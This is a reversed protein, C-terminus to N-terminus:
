RNEMEAIRAELESIRDAQGRIEDQQEQIAKILVPILQSYYIGLNEAPKNMPQPGNPGESLVTETKAVVESIVPEVEQAILGLKRGAEPRDRWSFSIPQLKMVEDLGYELDSIGDKLREDSTNITGDVAWVATWRNASGGLSWYNDRDPMWNADCGFTNSGIDAITEVSGIMITNDVHLTTDPSGTGIGVWGNKTITVRPTGGTGLTIYGNPRNCFLNMRDTNDLRLGAVTGDENEFYIGEASSQGTNPNTIYMGVFDDADRYIELDVAPDLTGIGVERDAFDGYILVNSDDFGNAIYLNDSGTEYYGAGYGIFVNGSGTVMSNGARSGIFVNSEGDSNSDGARHGVFVNNDGNKSATGADRGVFTNYHGGINSAGAACGIFTNFLGETNTMGATYGVFTNETGSTNTNGSNFGVFTNQGGTSTTGAYTGVFTNCYGSNTHGAYRGLFACGWSSNNEGAQSGVAINSIGDVHLVTKEGIKYDDDANIDGHVDLKTDPTMDGIGVNGALDSHMDDGTIAWDADPVAAPAQWSGVGSADSTLVYGSAPGTTLRFGDMKATGAIDLDEAPETTGIGVKGTGGPTLGIHGNLYTSIQLGGNGDAISKITHVNASDDYSVIGLSKELGAAGSIRINGSVDLKDGPETTNIGVNGNDRDIIMRPETNGAYFRLGPYSSGIVISGTGADWSLGDYSSIQYGATYPIGIDGDVFLAYPGLVPTDIWVAGNSDVYLADVPDGDDADLSHGDGAGGANLVSDAVAARMAWPVSTIRMRPYMEVDADVAIGIWREPDSFLGEPIATGSGLIVNFLGEDVDVGTHDEVWIAPTAAGSDPYIKFTLDHSGDLPQGSSDTLIGQYNVLRPVDAISAAALLLVAVALLVNVLSKMSNEKGKQRFLM